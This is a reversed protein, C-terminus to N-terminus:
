SRARCRYKRSRVKVRIQQPRGRSFDYEPLIEDAAVTKASGSKKAKKMTAKSMIRQLRASIIRIVDEREAYMVSLLRREKSLGLLAFREEGLSHRPDPVIRGLPDGFVTAAEEFSVRHKRLNAAAKRASWEFELAL